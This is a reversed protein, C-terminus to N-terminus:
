AWIFYTCSSFNFNIRFALIQFCKEMGKILLNRTRSNCLKIKDFLKFVDVFGNDKTLFEFIYDIICIENEIARTYSITLFRCIIKYYYFPNANHSFFSVFSGIQLSSIAFAIVCPIPAMKLM